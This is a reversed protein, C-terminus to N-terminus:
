RDDDAAGGGLALTTKEFGTRVDYVFIGGDRGGAALMTGDHSFKMASLFRAPTRCEFQKRQNDLDWVVVKGDFGGWAATKGTRSVDIALIGTQHFEGHWLERGTSADQISIADGGGFVIAERDALFAAATRVARQGKAIRLEQSRLDWVASSGDARACHLERGDASFRLALASSMSETPQEIVSGSNPDCAYMTGTGSVAAVRDENDSVAVAVFGVGAPVALLTTTEGTGLDVWMLKGSYSGVLVHRSDPTLAASRGITDAPLEISTCGTGPSLAHLVLADQGEAVGRSVSLLMRGDASWALCTVTVGPPAPAGASIGLTALPGRQLEPDAAYWSGAVVVAVILSTGALAERSLYM